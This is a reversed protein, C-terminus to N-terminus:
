LLCQIARGNFLNKIKTNRTKAEENIQIIKRVINQTCTCRFSLRSTLYFIGTKKKILQITM